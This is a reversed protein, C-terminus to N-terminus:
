RRPASRGASPHESPVFREFCARELPRKSPPSHGPDSTYGGSGVLMKLRPLLMKAAKPLRTGDSELVAVAAAVGEALNQLARSAPGASVTNAFVLREREGLWDLHGGALEAELPLVNTVWEFALVLAQLSDEGPIPSFRRKGLGTVQVPCWWPDGRQPRPSRVPLGFRIVEARSRRDRLLRLKREAFPNGLKHPRWV